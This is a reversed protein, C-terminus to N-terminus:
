EHNWKSWNDKAGIVRNSSIITLNIPNLDNDSIWCFFLSHQRYGNQTYYQRSLMIPLSSGESFSTAKNLISCVGYPPGERDFDIDLRLAKSTSGTPKPDIKIDKRFFEVSGFSPIHSTKINTLEKKIFRLREIMLNDNM